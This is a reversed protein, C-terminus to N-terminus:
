YLKPVSVNVETRATSFPTKHNIYNWPGKSIANFFSFSWTTVFHNLLYITM